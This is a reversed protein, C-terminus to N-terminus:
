ERSVSERLNCAISEPLDPAGTVTEPKRYVLCYCGKLDASTKKTEKGLAAGPAKTEEVVQL